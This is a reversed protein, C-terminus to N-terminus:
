YQGPGTGSLKPPRFLDPANSVTHGDALLMRGLQLLAGDREREREIYISIYGGRGRGRGRGGEGEGEGEGEREREIEREREREREGASPGCPGGPTGVRLGRAGILSFWLFNIHNTSAARCGSSFGAFICSNFIRSVKSSFCGM